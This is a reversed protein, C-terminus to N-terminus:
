RHYEKHAQVTDSSDVPVSCEANEGDNTSTTTHHKKRGLLWVFRSLCCLTMVLITVFIRVAICYLRWYTCFKKLYELKITNICIDETMQELM